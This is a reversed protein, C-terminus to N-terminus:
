IINDVKGKLASVYIKIYDFCDSCLEDLNNIEFHKKFIKWFETNSLRDFTRATLLHKEIIKIEDNNGKIQIENNEEISISLNAKQKKM